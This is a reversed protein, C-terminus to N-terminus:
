AGAEAERAEAELAAECADILPFLAALGDSSDTTGRMALGIPEVGCERLNRKLVALSNLNSRYEGPTTPVTWIFKGGKATVYVKVHSNQTTNDIKCGLSELAKIVPRIYKPVAM